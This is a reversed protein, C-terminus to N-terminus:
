LRHYSVRFEPNLFIISQVIQTAFVFASILKATVPDPTQIEVMGGHHEGDLTLTSCTLRTIVSDKPDMSVFQTILSVM